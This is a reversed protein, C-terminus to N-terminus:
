AQFVAAQQKFGDATRALQESAASAQHAGAAAAVAADNISVITRNIEDVVSRQEETMTAIQVTMESVSEASRTIQELADAARSVVATSDAVKGRSREMSTSAQNASRLLKDVMSEIETTSAQTRQALTRVEDAVVAFGRGQEGARAAEIAANLALLNTQEAIGRIVDLVTSINNTQSNLDDISLGAQQIEEVLGTITDRVEAVRQAGRRALDRAENGSNATQSTNRAIEEVSTTLENIATAVQESDNRQREAGNATDRVISSMEEAATALEVSGSSVQGVLQQFRQMLRNFAGAMEGKVNARLRLDAKEAVEQMVNAVALPELMRRYTQVGLWVLVAVVVSSLTGLVWLANIFGSWAAEREEAAVRLQLDILDTVKAGIPDIVDYLPGDFRGMAGSTPGSLSAVSSRLENVARDAAEFLEKAEGALRSEEQTLETAMYEKWRTHILDTASDLEAVVQNATYRGANAKNVADIVNVAYADAIQKLQSLPVVRDRYIRDVGANVQQLEFLSIATTIILALLPLASMILMRRKFAISNINDAM